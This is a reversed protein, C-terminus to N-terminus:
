SWRCVYHHFYVGRFNCQYSSYIGMSIEATQLPLEEVIFALPMLTASQAWVGSGSLFGLSMYNVWIRPSFSKLATGSSTFPQLAGGSNEKM